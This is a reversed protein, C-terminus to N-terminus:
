PKKFKGAPQPAKGVAIVGRNQEVIAKGIGDVKALDDASRFPGNAKRYSVIAAAKAEGVGVLSAALEAPGASNINVTSAEASTVALLAALVATFFFARTM